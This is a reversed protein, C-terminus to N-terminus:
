CERSRRYNGNPAWQPFKIDKGSVVFNSLLEYLRHDRRRFDDVLCARWEDKIFECEQALIGMNSIIGWYLYETAMCDYHCTKDDYGYWSHHPYESLACNDFHLKEFKM